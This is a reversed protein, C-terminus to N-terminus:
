KKGGQEKELLKINNNIERLLARLFVDINNFQEELDDNETENAMISEHCMHLENYIQNLREHPTTM